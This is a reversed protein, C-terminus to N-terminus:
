LPVTVTLPAATVTFTTNVFVQSWYKAECRRLPPSSGDRRWQHAADFLPIARVLTRIARKLCPQLSRLPHRM